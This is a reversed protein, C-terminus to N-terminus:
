IRGRAFRQLKQPQATCFLQTAIASHSLLTQYELILKTITTQSM